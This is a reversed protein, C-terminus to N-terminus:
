IGTWRRLANSPARLVRAAAGRYPGAGIYYAAHDMGVSVSGGIASVLRPVYYVSGGMFFMALAAGWFSIEDNQPTGTTTLTSMLTQMIGGYFLLVVDVMLLSLLLTALAHIWGRFLWTTAAFALFPIVVPGIVLLLLLLINLVAYTYFLAYLSLDILVRAAVLSLAVAFAHLSWPTEAWINQAATYTGDYVDDFLAVPSNATGANPLFASSQTYSSWPALSNLAIGSSQLYQQWWQPLGTVPQVIYQNYYTSGAAILPMIIVLKTIFGLFENQIFIRGYLGRFLLMVLALVFFPVVYTGVATQMQNLVSTYTQQTSGILQNWIWEFPTALPGPTSDVAPATLTPAPTGTMPNVGATGYSPIGLLGSSNSSIAAGNGSFYAQLGSSTNLSAYDAPNTSGAAFASTGGAAQIAATAPADCGACTWDSFGHQNFDQYFVATQVSAPAMYASPYQQTNVGIQQAYTQWTGNTFQYLGSATSGPLPNQITPNGGSEYHAILAAPNLETTQAQAAASGALTFLGAGLAVLVKM